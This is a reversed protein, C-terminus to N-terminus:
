ASCAWTILTATEPEPVGFLQFAHDRQNAVWDGDDFVPYADERGRYASSLNATSQWFFEDWSTHDLPGNHLGLWYAGAGLSIAGISYDFQLSNASCCATGPGLNVPDLVVSGSALIAGPNGANDAYIRWTISGYYSNEHKGFGWFRVNTLTTASQLVFDDAEIWTTMENGGSTNPPGNNVILEGHALGRCLLGVLLVLGAPKSVLPLL